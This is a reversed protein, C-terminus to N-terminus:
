KLFSYDFYFSKDHHIDKLNQNIGAEVSEYFSIKHFFHIFVTRFPKKKKKKKKQRDTCSFKDSM